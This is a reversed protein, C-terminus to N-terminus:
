SATQKQPVTLFRFVLFVNIVAMALAIYFAYKTNGGSSSIAIGSASGFLVSGCLSSFQFMGQATTRTNEPLDGQFFPTLCTQAIANAIGGLASGLWVQLMSSNADLLSFCLLAGFFCFVSIIMLKRVNKSFNQALVRGTVLGGIMTLITNPMAGTSGVTASKEMTYLIYILVYGASCTSFPVLLLNVAFATRFKKHQFIHLPVTPNDVQLSHKALLFASVIAVGPLCLGASIWPFLKGALGLWLVLPIVFAALYCLGLTDFKLKSSATRLDYNKLILIVGVLTLPIWILYAIRTLEADILIGALLPSVLAGLATMSSILGYCRLSEQHSFFTAVLSHPVSLILGMGFAGFFQLLMFVFTKDTILIFCRAALMIFVGLTIVKKRGIKNTIAGVAPLAIMSGTSGFANILSYHQYGGMKTLLSGNATSAGYNFFQLGVCLFLIGVILMSSKKKM